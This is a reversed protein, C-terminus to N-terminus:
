MGRFNQVTKLCHTDHLAFSGSYFLYPLSSDYFIICSIHYYYFTILIFWKWDKWTNYKYIDTTGRENTWMLQELMCITCTMM